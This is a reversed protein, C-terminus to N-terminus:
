EAEVSPVKDTNWSGDNLNKDENEQLIELIETVLKQEQEINKPTFLAPDPKLFGFARLGRQRTSIETAEFAENIEDEFKAVHDMSGLLFKPGIKTKEDEDDVLWCPIWSASVKPTNREVHALAEQLITDEHTTELDASPQRSRLIQAILAYKEHHSHTQNPPLYAAEEQLIRQLDEQSGFLLQYDRHISLDNELLAASFSKGTSLYTRIRTLAEKRSTWVTGFLRRRFLLDNMRPIAIGHFHYFNDRKLSRADVTRQSDEYQVILTM